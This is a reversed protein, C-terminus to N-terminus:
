SDVTDHSMKKQCVGGNQIHSLLLVTILLVTCATWACIDNSTEHSYVGGITISEQNSATPLSTYLCMQFSLIAESQKSILDQCGLSQIAKMSNDLALSVM